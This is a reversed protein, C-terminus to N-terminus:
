RDKNEKKRCKLLNTQAPIDADKSFPHISSHFHPPIFHSIGGGFFGVCLSCFTSKPRQVRCSLLNHCSRPHTYAM